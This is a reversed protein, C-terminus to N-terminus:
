AKAVSVYELLLTGKGVTASITPTTGSLAIGILTNAALGAAWTGALGAIVDYTGIAELNAESLTIGNTVESGATGVEVAPTTGGLSFAEDVRLVASVILAGKPLYVEPVFGDANGDTISQGTLDMHFKQVGSQSHEIGVAGGTERAGYQNYVGIGSGNSYSM